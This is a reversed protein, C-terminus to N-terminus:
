FYQFIVKNNVFIYTTFKFLSLYLCSYLKVSEEINIVPPKRLRNLAIVAYVGRKFRRNLSMEQDFLQTEKLEENATTLTITTLKPLTKKNKMKHQESDYM